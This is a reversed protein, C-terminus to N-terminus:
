EMSAKKTEKIMKPCGDSTSRSACISRVDLVHVCIDLTIKFGNSASTRMHRHQVYAAPSITPSCHLLSHFGFLNNKNHELKPNYDNTIWEMWGLTDM